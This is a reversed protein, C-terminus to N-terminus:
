ILLIKKIDECLLCMLESLAVSLYFKAGVHYFLYIHEIAYDDNM